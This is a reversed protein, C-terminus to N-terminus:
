WGIEELGFSGSWRNAPIEFIVLSEKQRSEIGHSDAMKEAARM